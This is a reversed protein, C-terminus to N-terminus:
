LKKKLDFSSSNKIYNKLIDSLIMYELKSWTSMGEDRIDLGAGVQVGCQDTIIFRDHMKKGTNDWLYLSCIHGYKQFIEKSSRKWSDIYKQTDTKGEEYKAHVHISGRHRMGRRKGFQEAVLELTKRFSYKSTNFYPDILTVKQAYTLLGSLENRMNEEDQLIYHSMTREETWHESLLLDEVTSINEDYEQSGVMSFFPQKEDSIEAIDIWDKETSAKIKSKPHGVILNQDKLKDFISLLRGKYQEPLQDLNEAVLKKWEGNNLDALIGNTAIGQLFSVLSIYNSDGSTLYQESFVEPTCSFDYLM